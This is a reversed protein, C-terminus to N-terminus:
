GTIGVIKLIARFVDRFQYLFAGLCLIAWIAATAAFLTELKM